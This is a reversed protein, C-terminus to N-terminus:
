DKPPKCFRFPFAQPFNISTEKDLPVNMNLLADRSAYYIEIAGALLGIEFEVEKVKDTIEKSSFQTGLDFSPKLSNDRGEISRKLEPEPAHNSFYCATYVAESAGLGASLSSSNCTTYYHDSSWWPTQYPPTRWPKPESLPPFNIVIPQPKEKEEFIQIGIVGCNSTDGNTEESKAAYSKSKKSFKFANVLDNSVRFGKIHYSSYGNLVYGQQTSGAAKGDIVNIGDTSAIILRRNWSNNKVRITYESNEKAEIFTKGQHAYKKVPKENILIDVETSLYSLLNNM